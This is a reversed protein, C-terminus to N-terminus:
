LRRYLQSMGISHGMALALEKQEKLPKEGRRADTIYSHRLINIGTGRGTERFFIKKIRKCLLDENMPRGNEALLVQYGARKLYFGLIDRIQAEDDVVLVVGKTM